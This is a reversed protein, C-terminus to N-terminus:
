KVSVGAVNFKKGNKYIVINGNEVFKGSKVTNASISEVPTNGAEIKITMNAIDVYLTYTGEDLLFSNDNAEQIIATEEDLKGWGNSVSIRGAKFADWDDKNAGLSSSIAFYGAGTFDGIVNIVGVYKGVNNNYELKVANSSPDWDSGEIEGIVYLPEKAASPDVWEPFTSEEDGSTLYVKSISCKFDGAAINGSVNKNFNQIAWQNLGTVGEPIAFVMKCPKNTAGCIQNVNYDDGPYQVVVSIPKETYEIEFVINKFKPNMNSKGIWTGNNWGYDGGAVTIDGAGSLEETIVSPAAEGSLYAKVIKIKGDGKIEGAQLYFQLVHQKRAEDLLLEIKTQGANCAASQSEGDKHDGDDGYEAILQCYFDVPEIELVVKTFRSCDKGPLWWGRGAWNSGYTITQTAADYSSDWGAGLDTLSLDETEGQGAAYAAEVAAYEEETAFYIAKVEMTGATNGNQLAVTNITKKGTAELKIAAFAPAPSAFATASASNYEPGWEGYIGKCDYQLQLTVDTTSSTYEVVLYDYASMDTYVTKSDDCTKNAEDVVHGESYGKITIWKWGGDFNVTQVGCVEEKANITLTSLLTALSLLFKKM